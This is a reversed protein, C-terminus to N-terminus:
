GAWYPFASPQGCLRVKSRLLRLDVGGTSNKRGGRPSQMRVFSGDRARDLSMEDQFGGLLVKFCLVHM